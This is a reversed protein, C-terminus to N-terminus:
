KKQLVFTTMVWGHDSPVVKSPIKKMNSWSLQVPHWSGRFFMYDVVKDIYCTSSPQQLVDYVNTYPEKKEQLYKVTKTGPFDNFDGTVIDGLPKSLHNIRDEEKQEKREAPLHVTSICVPYENEKQKLRVTLTRSTTITELTKEFQETRFAIGCLLPRKGQKIEKRRKKNLALIWEFGKLDPLEDYQLEQACVIDPELKNVIDEIKVKRYSWSLNESSCYPFRKSDGFDPHMMNWTLVKLSNM